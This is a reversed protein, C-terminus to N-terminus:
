GNASVQRYQSDCSLQTSGEFNCAKVRIWGSEPINALNHETCSGYGPTTNITRRTDPSTSRYYYSVPHHDRGSDCNYLIEGTPQWCAFAGGDQSVSAVTCDAAAAFAAASAPVQEAPVTQASATGGGMGFVTLAIAAVVAIGGRKM